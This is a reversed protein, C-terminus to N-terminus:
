EIIGIQKMLLVANMKTTIGDQLKYDFKIIEGDIDIEFCKNIIRGSGSNELEGLSTDHTAIVGTAGLEVMKKLFLGSGSSKDASNTGKLIEDLIFLVPDGNEIKEKLLKLRKLEAYFYSENNSLSDATRMSTFLKVPAFKMEEACVPAGTMALIYNVAITRLFTSKGAMNAGTIICITGKRELSFDNCVRKNEDILQHGLKKTALVVDDTSSVPYIFCPNNFAYNGFSIFADVEGLMELWVPFLNKYDTKWKELRFISQYDWLFLGNLVFSVLMNMRSDFAQILRSLKKVALAASVGNGAINFKIDILKQSTFSEDEFAKLLSNFSVLYNYKRSLANHIRNTKKLGTSIYLLNTLFIFTFFSYHLIGAIVLLLSTVAVVPLFWIFFKKVASSKIFSEESLWEVLDAIDKKELPKKMGSALFQHRWKGKDSLERIAKQRTILETSLAFPESLWKAVTDRGYGTVTRNLYQFLSSNGFLDVDNSFDHSTDIYSIGTEFASHDGSVADAENRNIVILNGLFERKESHVSYTKLAFFFASMVAILLILGTIFSEFFGFCIAIFGGIFIILRLVSLILLLKDESNKQVTFAKAASLYKEKLEQKGM